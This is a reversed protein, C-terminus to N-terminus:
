PHEYLCKRNNLHKDSSCLAGLFKWLNSMKILRIIKLQQLNIFLEDRGSNKSKFVVFLVFECYQTKSPLFFKVAM